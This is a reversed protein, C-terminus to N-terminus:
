IYFLTSFLGLGLDLCDKEHSRNEIQGLIKENFLLIKISRSDKLTAHINLEFYFTIKDFLGAPM